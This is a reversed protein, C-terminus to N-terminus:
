PSVKVVAPEGSALAQTLREMLQTIEPSPKETKIQELKKLWRDDPNFPEGADLKRLDDAFEPPLGFYVTAYTCDFDDDKDRLYLPHKPLRYEIICGCCDCQEGPEKDGDWHERNGGGNRTYVAIEDESLFADRFRGVDARTLGLTALLLDAHQNTGFLLTYM